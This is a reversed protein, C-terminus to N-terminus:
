DSMNGCEGANMVVHICPVGVVCVGLAEVVSRAVGIVGAVVGGARGEANVLEDVDVGDHCCDWDRATVERSIAVGVAVRCCIVADVDGIVFVEAVLGHDGVVGYGGISGCDAVISGGGGCWGGICPCLLVCVCCMSLGGLINNVSMGSDSDGMYM